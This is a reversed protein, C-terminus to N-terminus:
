EAGLIWRKNFWFYQDPRERIEADLRAMVAKTMRTVDAERDAAADPHFAEGLSWHHRTWGERRLRVTLIPVDASHAFFAMGRAIDAKGGLFDVTVPTTKARIDPLIALVQGQKLKHIVGTITRPGMKVADIATTERMRNLYADILPNKQSRMIVFLPIGFHRLVVGALEWNGLHPLALIAGRGEVLYPELASIDDGSFMKKIRAVPTSGVRLLEIVSFCFNRWALWLTRRIEADSRTDGFVTQLRAEFRKWRKRQVLRALRAVGWGLGLAMRLPLIGVIFAVGRLAAYEIIHKPRYRV